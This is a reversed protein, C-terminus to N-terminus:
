KELDAHGSFTSFWAKKFQFDEQAKIKNIHKMVIDEKIYLIVSALTKM